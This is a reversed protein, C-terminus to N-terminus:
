KIPKPADAKAAEAERVPATRAEHEVFGRAKLNVVERPVSTEVVAGNKEFRPM